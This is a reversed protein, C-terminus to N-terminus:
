NNTLEVRKDWMTYFAKKIEEHQICCNFLFKKGIETIKCGCKLTVTNSKAEM